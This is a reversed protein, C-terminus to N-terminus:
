NATRMSNQLHLSRADAQHSTQPNWRLTTHPTPDGFSRAELLGVSKAHLTDPRPRIQLRM